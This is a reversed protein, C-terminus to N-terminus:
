SEGDGSTKPEFLVLEGNLPTAFLQITMVSKAGDNRPFAVGVKNFRTKGDTGEAPTTVNYYNSM